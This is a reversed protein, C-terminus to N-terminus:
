FLADMEVLKACGAERALAWHLVREQLAPDADWKFEQEM